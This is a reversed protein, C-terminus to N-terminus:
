CGISLILAPRLHIQGLGCSFSLVTMGHGHGRVQGM